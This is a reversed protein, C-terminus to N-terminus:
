LNPGFFKHWPFYNLSNQDEFPKNNQTERWQQDFQKLDNENMNILDEFKTETGTPDVKTKITHVKDGIQRTIVTEKNGQSDTFTKHKEVTGDPRQIIRISNMKKYSHSEFPKTIQVEESPEQERNKWAQILDKSNFKGDLITDEKDQLAPLNLHHEKDPRLFKDRLSGESKPQEFPLAEFNGDGFDFIAGNSEFGSFIGKMMDDMQQEYYRVIGFPDSFIKFHMDSHFNRFDNEDSDSDDDQWIPNRFKDTCQHDEFSQKPADEGKGFLNKFFNVISM